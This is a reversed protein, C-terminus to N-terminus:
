GTPRRPRSLRCAAGRLTRMGPRRKNGGSFPMQVDDLVRLVSRAIVSVLIKARVSNGAQMRERVATASRRCSMVVIFPWTSQALGLAREALGAQGAATVLEVGFWALLALLVAVACATVAPRLAWPVAVGHRWAAAPWVALAGLGAAAFIAHRLSGSGTQLPSAAVLVGAAAGAMLILRGPMRAPGLAMATAFECISAAVFVLTMVWRYAAGLAALGSVTDGIPDYSGPQLWGAVTWGSALLVPAAASSLM